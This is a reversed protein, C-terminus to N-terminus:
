KYQDNYVTEVDKSKINQFIQALTNKFREQASFTESKSNKFSNKHRTTDSSNYISNIM